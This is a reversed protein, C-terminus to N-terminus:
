TKPNLGNMWCTHYELWIDIITLMCAVTYAITNDTDTLDTCSTDATYSNYATYTTYTAYAIFAVKNTHSWRQDKQIQIQTQTVKVQWPVYCDTSYQTPCVVLKSKKHVQMCVHNTGM